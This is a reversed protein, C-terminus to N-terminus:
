FQIHRKIIVNRWPVIYITSEQNKINTKNTKFNFKNLTKTSFIRQNTNTGADAYILVPAEDEEQVEKEEKGM